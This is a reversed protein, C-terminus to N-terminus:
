IRLVDVRSREYIKHGVPKGRIREEESVSAPFITLQAYTGPGKRKSLSGPNVVVVSEVIKAFPALASPTILVDPKVNIWEGLKMYSTDLMAGTALSGTGTKPLLERAVPPFLPFFHRQEILHRPQRALPNTEKPDRTVEERRLEYLIDQASIGIVIENLSITVPNSLFNAGKPLGLDKRPTREQPFSVHKSIADRVSPILIIHVNPIANALSVLPAAILARFVSTLSSTDPDIYTEEPLDFDGSAVLPHEIDLFPGILIVVDACTTSAQSCIAHLPEFSLNDDATYPGASLLINLPRPQDEEMADPGGCLSKNFLDLTPPLTAAPPLLPFKLIEKVSFYEGSANVGRLAVIQGPFFEFSPLSDVRLPVRLGAGMRRSTELVLSATNLKGEWSDSAIRGVAVIESTSQSAPNGFATDELSHYAQCLILFEDIRDDLVESAESLHMAMPRYSFKKVDTNATLKVRSDPSPALPPDPVSLHSNLSEVTQGANPRDAFPTSQGVTPGNERPLNPTRFEAPSSTAQGRHSRSTTPTEFIAGRKSTSGAGWSKTGPRPTNPVLGDLMGFVDSNNSVSRPTAGLTSRKDAGRAHAKSRTERELIEQLDKKFAKATELDLRTEESGMKLCYSEWKYFLEQPSISHLRLISCLEGLIDPPLETSPPLAFHVHLEEVISPDEM